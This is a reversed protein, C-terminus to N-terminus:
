LLRLAVRRWEWKTMLNHHSRRDATGRGTRVVEEPVGPPMEARLEKDLKQRYHSEYRLRPLGASKEGDDHSPNVLSNQCRQVITPLFM